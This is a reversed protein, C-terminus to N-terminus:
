LTTRKNVTEATLAKGWTGDHVIDFTIEVAYIGDQDKLDSVAAVQVAQDLTLSYPTATGANQGGTAAIRLFNTTGARAATLLAMGAADAEVGLKVTGEVPMEVLGGFSANASNVPWFPGFRGAINWEWSFVRLLKTTGLGASTTDLYIDVEKPLIPIQDIATPSSTLTIGDTIARGIVSGGLDIKDRDGKLSLEVIRCGPTKHARVASGNEITFSKVTDEATSSPAHTSKYATTSSIQTPAGYALVGDLLYMIEDYTPKGTITGGSWEKGLAHITSYKNGAPRFKDINLNPSMEISVGPLFRNAAVATGETSEVGIQCVQTVTTREAM